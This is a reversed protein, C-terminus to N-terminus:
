VVMSSRSAERDRQVALTRERVSMNAYPDPPSQNQYEQVGQQRALEQATQLQQAATMAPIQQQLGQPIAVQKYAAAINMPLERLTRDISKSIAVLPREGSNAQARVAELELRQSEKENMKTITERLTEKFSNAMGTISQNTESMQKQFSETLFKIQTNNMEQINKLQEQVRLERESERKQKEAELQAYLANSQSDDQKSQKEMLAIQADLLRQTRFDELQQLIPSKRPVSLETTTQSQGTALIVEKELDNKWIRNFYNTLVMRIKAQSIMSGSLVEYLAQPTNEGYNAFSSVILGRGQNKAIGAQALIRDLKIEESEATELPASVEKDKHKYHQHSSLGKQNEKTEGCIDCRYEPKPEPAQVEITKSLTDESDESIEEHESDKENSM